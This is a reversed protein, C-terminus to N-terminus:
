ESVDPRNPCNACASFIVDIRADLAQAERRMTDITQHLTNVEVQRTRDRAECADLLAKCTGLDTELEETRALLRKVEEALQYYLRQTTEAAHQTAETAAKIIVEAHHERATAQVDRATVAEERRMMAENARYAKALSRDEQYGRWWRLAAGLLGSKILVGFAFLLGAASAIGQQALWKLTELADHM